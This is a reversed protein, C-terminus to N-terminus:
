DDDGTKDSDALLKREEHYLAPGALADYIALMNLLGAVMTYVVAIEVRKGYLRHLEDLQQENPPSQLDALPGPLMETLGMWHAFAPLAVVGTGVQALYPWRWEHDNWRLYVVKWGGLYYGFLFLPLICLMFLVGKGTRGQYIHGLGPVLWGLIAAFHPNPLPLSEQQNM